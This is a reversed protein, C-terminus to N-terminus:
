TPSDDPDDAVEILDVLDPFEIVISERALEIVEDRSDGAAYLNIEPVRAGWVVKKGVRESGVLLKMVRVEDTM